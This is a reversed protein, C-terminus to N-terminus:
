WRWLIFGIYFLYMIVFLFGVGKWIQKSKSLNVLVFLILTAVLLYLIDFNYKPDFKVFNIISSVGWVLFINFINSGIINWIAIDNQWKLVGMLSAVLEPLSTWIAVITAWILFDSVGFSKALNTAWDVVLDWWIYLWVLGLVVYVFNLVINNYNSDQVDNVIEEAKMISFLYYVFVVFFSLLVLWDIRSLLNFNMWDILKDNVLFFLVLVALFSFPIEKYLTSDKVILVKKALLASLGLILLLNALNSWIINSILLNSNWKLSAIANVFLEPASTGFSVLTLWIFLPSLWFKKAIGVAWTILKDWSVVLLYLGVVVFIISFFKTTVLLDIKFLIWLILVLIFFIEGLYLWFM